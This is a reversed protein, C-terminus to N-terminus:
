GFVLTNVEISRRRPASQHCGPDRFASHLCFKASGDTCSDYCKILTVESPTQHGLYYWAHRRDFRSLLIDFRAYVTDIHLPLLNSTDPSTQWDAVALPEHHVMQGIPRWVNVFRVRGQLLREADDGLHKRVETAIFEPTRDTHVSQSTPREQVYDRGAPSDTEYSQRIRHTLVSVQNAGTHEKVLQQIEAYYNKEISAKDVFSEATHHTLYEFGNVDLRFKEERGRLDQIVVDRPNLIYNIRFNPSGPRPHMLYLSKGDPNPLAYNLTTRVDGSACGDAM